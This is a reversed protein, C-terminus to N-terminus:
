KFKGKSNYQEKIYRDFDNKTKGTIKKYAKDLTVSDSYLIRGNFAGCVLEGKLKYRLLDNVCDEISSGAYFEIIEYKKRM